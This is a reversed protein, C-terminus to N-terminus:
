FFLAHAFYFCTGPEVNPVVALSIQLVVHLLPQAEQRRVWLTVQRPFYWPTIRPREDFALLGILCSHASCSVKQQMMLAARTSIGCRRILQGAHLVKRIGKSDSSTPMGLSEALCLPCGDSWQIRSPTPCTSVYVAKPKSDLTHDADWQSDALQLHSTDHGLSRIDM